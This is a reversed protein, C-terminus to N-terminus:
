EALLCCGTTDSDLYPRYVTDLATREPGSLHLLCSLCLTLPAPVGRERERVSGLGGISSTIRVGPMM